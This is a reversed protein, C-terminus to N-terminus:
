NEGAHIDVEVQILSQVRLWQDARIEV